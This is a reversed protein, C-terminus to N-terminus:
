DFLAPRHDSAYYLKNELVKTGKHMKEQMELDTLNPHACVDYGLEKLYTYMHAHDKDRRRPGVPISGWEFKNNYFMVASGLKKYSNLGPYCNGTTMIGSVFSKLCKGIYLLIETKFQLYVNIILGRNGWIKSLHKAM